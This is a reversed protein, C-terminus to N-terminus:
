KSEAIAHLTPICQATGSQWRFKSPCKVDKIGYEVKANPDMAKAQSRELFKNSELCINEELVWKFGQPCKVQFDLNEKGYIKTKTLVGHQKGVEFAYNASNGLSGPRSMLQAIQNKLEAIQLKQLGLEESLESVDTSAVVVPAQTNQTEEINPTKYQSSERLKLFEIKLSDLEFQLRDILEKQSNMNEESTWLNIQGSQEKVQPSKLYEVQLSDFITKVRQNTLCSNKFNVWSYGNPCKYNVVEYTEELSARICTSKDPNWKFGQPCSQAQTYAFALLFIILYYQNKM